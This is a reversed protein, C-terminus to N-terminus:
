DIHGTGMAWVRVSFTPPAAATANKRQTSVAPPTWVVATQNSTVFLSSAWTARGGQAFAEVVSRDVLVRLTLENPRARSSHDPALPQNGQLAFGGSTGKSSSIVVTAGGSGASKNGLVMVGVSGFNIPVGTSTNYTDSSTSYTDSSTNETDPSHRKDTETVPWTV